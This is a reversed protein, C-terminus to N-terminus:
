MMREKFLTYASRLENACVKSFKHNSVYGLWEAVCKIENMNMDEILNRWGDPQPMLAYIIMDGFGKSDERLDGAILAIMLAPLVNLQDTNNLKSLSCAMEEFDAESKPALVFKRGAFAAEILEPTM